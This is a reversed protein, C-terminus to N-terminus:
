IIQQKQENYSEYEALWKAANKEVIGWKINLHEKMFNAVGVSWGTNVNVSVHIQKFDNDTLKGKLFILIAAMENKHPCYHGSQNRLAVIKGDKVIIMGASNVNGGSFFSSHQILGTATPKKLAMYLNKRGLAFAYTGDNLYSGDESQSDLGLQSIKGNKEFTVKTRKLENDDFYRVKKTNIISAFDPDSKIKDSVFQNFSDPKENLKNKKLVYKKYEEVTSQLVTGYVHIQNGKDDQIVITEPKYNELNLGKGSGHLAGKSSAPALELWKYTDMESSQDLQLKVQDMARIAVESILLIHSFALTQIAGATLFITSIAKTTLTNQPDRVSTFLNDYLSKIIQM